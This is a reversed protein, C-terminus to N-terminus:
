RGGATAAHAPMSRFPMPLDLMDSDMPARTVLDRYQAPTMGHMHEVFAVIAWLEQDSHSTGWAPMGTDKIGHKTEWFFEAAPVDTGRIFRPPRPYLGEHLASKTIGPALHCGSCMAAYQGAGHLLMASDPNAVNGPVQIGRAHYAVSHDAVRHLTRAVFQMHPVDAGVDYRGSYVYWGSVGGALVLVVLIRAFVKVPVGKQRLRAPEAEHSGSGSSGNTLTYVSRFNRLASRPLRGSARARVSCADACAPM